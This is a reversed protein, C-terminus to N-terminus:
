LKIKGKDIPRDILTPLVKLILVGSKMKKYINLRALSVRGYYFPDLPRDTM